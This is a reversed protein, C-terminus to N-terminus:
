EGLYISEERAPFIVSTYRDPFYANTHAYRKKAKALSGIFTLIGSLTKKLLFTISGTPYLAGTITKFIKRVLAGSPALSGSLSKFQRYLTNITGSPLISGSLGKYITRGLSGALSVAGSLGVIYRKIGSLNGTPTLAGNLTMFRKLINSVTGTPTLDGSLSKFQKKVSSLNGIFSVAGSLNKLFSRGLSGTPTISGSLSKVFKFAVVGFPTVSGSLPKIVKISLSGTPTVAGALAKARTFTVILKPKYGNGKESAWFYIFNLGTPSNRSFDGYNRICFKTTGTKNIAARGTSNLTWTNYGNTLIPYELYSDALENGSFSDFDETTLTDAQTGQQVNLDSYGADVEGQGDTADGYISLTAASITASVGLVSTDFPLFSRFVYYLSSYLSNSMAPPASSEAATGTQANRVNSYDNGSNVVYGDASSSYFTASDKITLPYSAEDFVKKAILEEDENIAYQGLKLRFDGEQNYKLLVPGGPNSQFIWYGLLAGEIVRLRRQCIGYDWELTNGIYNENVPDAKLLLADPSIPPCEFDNLFLRPNVSLKDGAKKGDTQDNQIKLSLTTGSVRADFLNRKIKYGQQWQEWSPELLHGEADAMPLRSFVAIEKQSIHDFYLKAFPSSRGELFKGYDQTFEVYDKDIGQKVLYDLLVPDTVMRATDTVKNPM